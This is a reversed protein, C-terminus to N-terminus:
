NIINKSRSDAISSFFVVCSPHRSPIVVVPWGKEPKPNQLAKTKRAHSSSSLQHNISPSSNITRQQKCSEALNHSLAKDTSSLLPLPSYTTPPPPPLLLLLPRKPEKTISFYFAAKKEQDRNCPSSHPRVPRCTKEIGWRRHYVM